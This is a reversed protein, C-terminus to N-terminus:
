FCFYGFIFPLLGLREKRKRERAEEFQKIVVPDLIAEEPEWTNEATDFGEWKIL